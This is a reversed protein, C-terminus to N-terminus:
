KVAEPSASQLSFELYPPAAPLKDAGPKAPDKVQNKDKEQGPQAGMELRAFTKGKLVPQEALGNIYRPLLGPAVVRGKLGIANGAGVIAVETLWLGDIRSRAFARFYPSYGRTNGFEGRQLIAQVQQLSQHETAAQAIGLEISQDKVRAPFASAVQVKRAERVRLEAKGALAQQELNAVQRQGYFALALGAALVLGLAQAMTQASLYNKRKQLLPNFLNIQQSM